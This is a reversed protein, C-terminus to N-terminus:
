FRGAAVITMTGAYDSAAPTTALIMANVTLPFYCANAIGTSVGIIRLTNDLGGGKLGTGSSAFNANPTAGNCTTGAAAAVGLNYGEQTALVAAASGVTPAYPINKSAITSNLGPTGAPDAAWM